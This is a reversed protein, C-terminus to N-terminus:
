RSGALSQAAVVARTRVRDLLGWHARPRRWFGAEALWARWALCGGAADGLGAVLLHFCEVAIGGSLSAVLFLAFVRGRLRCDGHRLVGHGYRRSQALHLAGNSAACRSGAHLNAGDGRNGSCPEGLYLATWHHLVTSQCYGWFFGSLSVDM